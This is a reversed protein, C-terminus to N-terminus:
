SPSASINVLKPPLGLFCLNANLAAITVSNPLFFPGSVPPSNLKCFPISTAPLDNPYAGRYPLRSIITMILANAVHSGPSINPSVNGRNNCAPIRTLVIDNCDSTCIHLFNASAVPPSAPTQKFVPCKRSRM